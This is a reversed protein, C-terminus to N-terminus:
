GGFVILSAVRDIRVRAHGGVQGARRDAINCVSGHGALDDALGDVRTL